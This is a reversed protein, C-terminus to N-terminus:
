DRNRMEQRRMPMADIVSYLYSNPVFETKELKIGGDKGILVYQFRNGERLYKERLKGASLPTSRDHVLDLVQDQKIVFIILDREMVGDPDKKLEEVQQDFMSNGLAPSFLLVIRNKWRYDDLDQIIIYKATFIALVLLLFKM